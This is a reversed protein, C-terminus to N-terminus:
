AVSDAPRGGTMPLGAHAGAFRPPPRPAPRAPLARGRGAGRGPRGRPPARLAAGRRSLIPRESGGVPSPSATGSLYPRQAPLRAPAEERGAGGGRAGRGAERAAGERAGPAPLWDPRRARAPAGLVGLEAGGAAGVPGRPGCAGGGGRRPRGCFLGPARFPPRPRPPATCPPPAHGPPPGRRCATTPVGLGRTGPAPDPSRPAIPIPASGARGLGRGAGRRLRPRASQATGVHGSGRSPALGLLGKRRPRTRVDVPGLFLHGASEKLIVLAILPRGATVQRPGRARSELPSEFHDPFPHSPDRSRLSGPLDGRSRVPPPLPHPPHRPEPGGLPSLGLSVTGTGTLGAYRDPRSTKRSLRRPAKVAPRARSARPPEQEEAPALTEPLSRGAGECPGSFPGQGGDREEM